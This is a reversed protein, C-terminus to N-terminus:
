ANAPCIPARSRVNRRWGNRPRPQVVRSGATSPAPYKQRGQLERRTSAIASAWGGAYQRAPLARYRELAGERQRSSRTEDGQRCAVSRRWGRRWRIRCAPLVSRAAHLRDATARGTSRAPRVHGYRGAHDRRRRFASATREQVRSIMWALAMDSLGTNDYGGGINSHVGPVVGARRATSGLAADTRLTWFTPAFPTACRTSPWPTFAWSRGEASGAIASAAADLLHLHASVPRQCARRSATPAWQTGVGSAASQCRM